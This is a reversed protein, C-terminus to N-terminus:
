RIVVFARTLSIIGTSLRYYYVGSVLEDSSITAEYIGPKLDRNALVRVERGLMDYVAITVHCDNPVAYRIRSQGNFPNPYNQSLAFAEPIAPEVSEHVATPPGLGAGVTEMLPQRGGIEDQGLAWIIAGGVPKTSIYNCKLGISVSDDYSIVQTQNQDRLYPVSGESDWSRSWGQQLKPAIVRYDLQSAGTSPGYMSAANYQWGYFPLGILLKQTTVGRTTKYYDVSYDIWGESNTAFSGYLPSNPGSTSTWTGYFDYTMIGFWNVDNSMGAVDYWQGSWNTAPMAMGIFRLLSEGNFATRLERVLLQLNTRETANKPYEWDIDVGDYDNALCFAKLNAVFRRRAATDAAM